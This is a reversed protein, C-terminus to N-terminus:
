RLAFPQGGARVMEHQVIAYLGRWAKGLEPTFAAGFQRELSWILAEGFAVYQSPTVGFEAHQRGSHTIISQFLERQDLAGVIAAIMDMLKIRQQEMDDPFLRRAEPALEFLRSYFLDAMHRRIPWMMDFSSRILAAQEPKVADPHQDHRREPNSANPDYM